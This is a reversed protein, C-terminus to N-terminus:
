PQALLHIRPVDLLQHVGHAAHTVDHPASIAVMRRRSATHYVMASPSVTTVKPPASYTIRPCALRRSSSRRSVSSDSRAFRQNTSDYRTSPLRTLPTAPGDSSGPM